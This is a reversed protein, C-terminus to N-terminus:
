ATSGNAGEDDSSLQAWRSQLHAALRRADEPVLAIAESLLPRAAAHSQSASQIAAEASRWLAQAPISETPAARRSKRALGAAESVNGRQCLVEALKAALQAQQDAEGFQDALALAKRLHHEARAADGASIEVEGARQAVFMSPRRLEPRQALFLEAREINDRAQDHDGRRAHLRAVEVLVGPHPTRDLEALEMCQTMADDVVTPGEVLALALWWRAALRERLSGSREAAALGDRAVEEMRRPRARRLEILGLAYCAQSALTDDNGSRAEALAVTAISGLEDMPIPDPGTILQIRARELHLHSTRRRDGTRRSEILASKLRNDADHHRGFMLSTETLRDDVLDHQPHGAPLLLEAQSFLEQAMGADSHRDYVRSGAV